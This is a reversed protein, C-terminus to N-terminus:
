VVSKWLQKLGEPSYRAGTSIEKYSIPCRNM